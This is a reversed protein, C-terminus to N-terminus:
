GWNWKEFTVVIVLEHFLKGSRKRCMPKISKQLRLKKKIKHKELLTLISKSEKDLILKM